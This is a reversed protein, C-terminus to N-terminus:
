SNFSFRESRRQINEYLGTFLYENVRNDHPKELFKRLSSYLVAFPCSVTITEATQSAKAAASVMVVSTVSYFRNESSVCDRGSSRSLETTITITTSACERFETVVNRLGPFNNVPIIFVASPVYLVMAGNYM